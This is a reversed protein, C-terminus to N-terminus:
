RRVPIIHNKLRAMYRGIELSEASKYLIALQTLCLRQDTALQHLSEANGVGVFEFVPQGALATDPSTMTDRHEFRDCIQFELVALKTSGSVHGV